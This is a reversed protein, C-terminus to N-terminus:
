AGQQNGNKPKTNQEQVSYMKRNHSCKSNDFSARYKDTSSNSLYVEFEHQFDKMGLLRKNDYSIHPAKVLERYGQLNRPINKDWADISM